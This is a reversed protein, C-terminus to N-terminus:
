KLPVWELYSCLTQLVSKVVTIHRSKGVDVGEKYSQYHSALNRYLFPFLREFESKLGNMLDKRRQESLENSPSYSKVEDAILRFVM